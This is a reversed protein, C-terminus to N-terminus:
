RCAEAIRAACQEVSLAATDLRIAAGTWPHYERTVVNDWSPPAHGDIDAVRSEVRRRHEVPDSCHLEVQLARVGAARAVELWAARSEEIPNVSDAIVTRGLRLNDRAVAYAVVYGAAHLGAGIEGSRLLAQEITDVRVYVAGTIRAVEKAISSKGSGPLGGLIILM